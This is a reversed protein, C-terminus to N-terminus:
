FRYELGMGLTWLDANEIDFYDFETRVGWNDSINILAGAGVTLGSSRGLSGPVNSNGITQEIEVTFNYGGLKGYLDIDDASLGIREALSLIPEIPAEQAIELDSPVPTRPENFGIGGSM